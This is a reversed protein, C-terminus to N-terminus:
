NRSRICSCEIRFVADRDTVAPPIHIIAKIRSIVDCTGSMASIPGKIAPASPICRGRLIDTEMHKIQKQVLGGACV